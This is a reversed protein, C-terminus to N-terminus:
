TASVPARGGLEPGRVGAAFLEACAAAGAGLRVPVGAAHLALETGAITAIVELENLSGLHGIRFVRGKLQGLGVGLSLQYREVAIRLVEGADAGDPMVVATTTNSYEAPDRCLLELGWEGAAARAAAALRAHRAYVAELGEEDLMRLAERLGYLLLTPPTFPFYGQHMQEIVPAWDLFFRPTTVQRSKELAREGAALVAMGPPLMLGKQSGTLAVDVGWDDFLFEISALSSVADVLLLAPHDADDLVQRVAALNTTVGTSTENHVVLVAAISRDGDAALKDALLELPVGSGWEVDLQDVDFGLKGACQAFLQSFHGLNFALVRDGPNLTNTLAIEWALTGSGSSLVIEGGQMGFLPRLREVLEHVVPPLDPGRHDPVARDMARLVREPVNTPGPVQLFPRGSM